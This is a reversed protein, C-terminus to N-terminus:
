SLVEKIVARLGDGRKSIPFMDLVRERALRGLQENHPKLAEKITSAVNAPRTDSVYLGADGVVEPISGVATVVPVCECAMAEAIALGFGEHMSLQTYVKAQQYEHLLQVDDLYGLYSLNLPAATLYEDVASQDIPKGGLRFSLDHAAAATSIFTDIGKRRISTRDMYGITLIWPQKIGQPKYYDGDVGLYLTQLNHAGNGLVDQASKRSADSFLLVRNALRFGLTAFFQQWGRVSILGYGIEPLSVIDYGGGVLVAPKRLARAVVLAPSCSGFWAFVLDNRAIARWIQRSTLVDRFPHTFGFLNLEEVEYEDRLIALDQFMFSPLSGMRQIYVFLV